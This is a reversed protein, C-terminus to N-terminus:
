KMLENFLTDNYKALNANVIKLDELESELKDIRKAYQSKTTYILFWVVFGVLIALIIVGFISTITDSIM